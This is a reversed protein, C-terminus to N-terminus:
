HATPVERDTQTGTNRVCDDIARQQAFMESLGRTTDGPFYNASYPTNTQPPPAYIEGRNTEKDMDEARRQCAARTNADARSQSSMGDGQCATLAIAGLLAILRPRIM